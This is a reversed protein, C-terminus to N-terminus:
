SRGGAAGARTAAGLVHPSTPLHIRLDPFRFREISEIRFGAAAIAAVTDRHAHCGGTIRPGITADWTRQVRGLPATESRVHEFFRLQGGPKVVRHVEALARLQDPVSCLVLSVVAADVSGDGAPLQGAVGAVVEVPVPAQTAAREALGRLHSEPEVALVRTVEPPYHAFNLGNGAGVEIVSGALGALLRERYEAAGGADMKPSVRAYLRAFIPHSVREADM